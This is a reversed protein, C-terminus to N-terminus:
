FKIENITKPFVITNESHSSLLNLYYQKTEEKKFSLLNIMSYVKKEKKIALESLGTTEIGIIGNYISIDLFESPICRPIKFNVYDNVFPTAGSRPHAKLVIKYGKEKLVMLISKFEVEYNKFFDYTTLNNELLLIAKELNLEPKYLHKKDIIVKDIKVQKINYEKFPFYLIPKYGKVHLWNFKIGTMYKYVYLKIKQKWNVKTKIVGKEETLEVLCYNIKNRKLLEKIFYATVWDFCNSFYFVEANNYEKFYNSYLNKLRKKEKQWSFINKISFVDDFPIFALKNMNINLLSLHKKINEVNVAFIDISSEKHKNVFDVAYQTHYPAQCFIVIKSNM